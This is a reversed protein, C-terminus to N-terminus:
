LETMLPLLGLDLLKIEIDNAKGIHEKNNGDFIEETSVIITGIQKSEKIVPVIRAAEPILEALIVAPVFLMWGCSVRDPFVKKYVEDCGNEKTIIEPFSYGGSEVCSYTCGDTLCLLSIIFEIMKEVNFKTQNLEISFSVVLSLPYERRQTSSYSPYCDVGASNEDPGGDWIGATWNPYEKKYAKEWRELISESLRGETFIKYQLAQKRSYGQEYWSRKTGLLEDLQTTVGLFIVALQSPKIPESCGFEQEIRFNLKM